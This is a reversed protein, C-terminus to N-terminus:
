DSPKGSEECPTVAHREPAAAVPDSFNPLAAVPAVYAGTKRISPLVEGVVWEEFREATPLKSRMVLRYVDREPILVTQPHLTPSDGVKRGAKCHAAIAKPADVYGLVFAVDRAVFWPEGDVTVVRVQAGDFTFPARFRPVTDHTWAM